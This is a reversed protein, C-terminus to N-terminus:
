RQTMFLLIALALVSYRLVYQLHEAGDMSWASCSGSSSIEFVYATSRDM